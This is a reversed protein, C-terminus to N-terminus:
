GHNVGADREREQRFKEGQALRERELQAADKAARQGMAEAIAVPPGSPRAFARRDGLPSDEWRTANLYSAPLPVFAGGEKTWGQSNRQWSLTSVIADIPPRLRQWAKWAAGKAEKRPYSEWFRLFDASYAKPKARAPDVGLSHDL